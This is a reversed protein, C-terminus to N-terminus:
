TRQYKYPLRVVVRTGAAEGRENHLDIVQVRGGGSRVLREHTIDMGVSKHGLVSEAQQARARARGIGDDEITCVLEKGEREIHLRLLGPEAKPKIGHWIANELYPQLILSPVEVREAEVEPAVEIEYQLKDKFRLQELKLFHRATDLEGALSTNPSLSSNLVRRTLRSFHVLYKSAAERQDLNVLSEIANLSNSFFHPNIQARLAALRAELRRQKQRQYLVVFVLAAVVLAFGGLLGTNRIRRQSVAEQQQLEFDLVEANASALEATITDVVGSYQTHLYDSVSAGFIDACSRSTEAGLWDCLASISQALVE